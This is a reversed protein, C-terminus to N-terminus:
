NRIDIETAVVPTPAAVLQPQVHKAEGLTKLDEAGYQSL